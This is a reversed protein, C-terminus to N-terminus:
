RCERNPSDLRGRTPGLGFSPERMNEARSAKGAEAGLFATLILAMQRHRIAWAMRILEGRSFPLYQLQPKQSEAGLLDALSQASTPPRNDVVHCVCVRRKSGGRQLIRLRSWAGQGGCSSGGQSAM